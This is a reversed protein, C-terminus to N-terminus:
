STRVDLNIILAAEAEPGNARELEATAVQYLL